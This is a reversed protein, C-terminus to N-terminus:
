RPSEGGGFGGGQVGFPLVGLQRAPEADKMKDPVFENLPIQLIPGVGPNFWPDSGAHLDRDVLEHLVLHLVRLQSSLKPDEGEPDLATPEATVIGDATGDM